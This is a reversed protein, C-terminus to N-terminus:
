YGVKKSCTWHGKMRHEIAWAMLLLQSQQDKYYLNEFPEGDKIAQLKMSQFTPEHFQALGFAAGGDGYQHHNFQSECAIIAQFPEIHRGSSLEQIYAVIGDKSSLDPKSDIIPAATVRPVTVVM